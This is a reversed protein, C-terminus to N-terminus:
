ESKRLHHKQMRLRNSRSLLCTEGSDLEVLNNTLQIKAIHNRNVLYSRHCRWFSDNLEEELKKLSYNFDLIEDNMHLRIMHKQGIAEFYLIKHIPIHRITDFIKLTFYASELVPEDQLRQVVSSFCDQIRRSMETVNGKVIYDMAEVRYRFTEFALDDHGTIFVIFGRPDHKRLKVALEMGNICGPFDIDLFYIAPMSDQKQIELLIDPNDAIRVPGIDCDMIFIQKNVLEEIQRCIAHEDDCIYVPIM